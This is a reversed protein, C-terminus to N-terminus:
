VITELYRGHRANVGALKGVMYNRQVDGSM